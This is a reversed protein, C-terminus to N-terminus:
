EVTTIDTTADDRLAARAERALEGSQELHDLLMGRMTFFLQRVRPDALSHRVNNGDRHSVVINRERMMSLAQSISVTSAGVSEALETTTRDAEALAEIIEIRMPNSFVKCVDAHRKSILKREM